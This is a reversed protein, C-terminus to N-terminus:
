VEALVKALVKALVEIKRIKQIRIGAKMWGKNKIM